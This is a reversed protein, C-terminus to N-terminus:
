QLSGGYFIDIGIAVLCLNRTDILLTFDDYRGTSNPTWLYELVKNKVETTSIYM